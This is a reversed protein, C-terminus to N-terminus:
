SAMTPSRPNFSDLSFARRWQGCWGSFGGQQQIFRGARQCRCRALDLTEVFCGLRVEQHNRVAKWRMSASSIRTSVVALDDLAGGRRVPDLAAAM